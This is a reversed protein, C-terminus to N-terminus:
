IRCFTGGGWIDRRLKREIGPRALVESRGAQWDALEGARRGDTGIVGGIGTVMDASYRRVGSNETRSSDREGVKKSYLYM